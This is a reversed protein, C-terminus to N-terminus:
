YLDEPKFLVSQRAAPPTGLEIAGGGGTTTACYVQNSFRGDRTAIGVTANPPAYNAASGPIAPTQLFNMRVQSNRYLVIQFSVPGTPGTGVVPVNAYEIVFRDDAPQFTSIQSGPNPQLDAWWGYIAQPPHLLDTLCRNPLGPTVGASPFSVYGDTNIRADLYSRDKLSFAFPLTIAVSSSGSLPYSVRVAAGPTEWLFGDPDSAASVSMVPVYISAVPEWNQVTLKVQVPQIIQGGGLREGVVWFSTSYVGTILHTSSIEVTARGPEGYRVTGQLPPIYRLWQNSGQPSISWAMGTASLNEITMTYSFPEAGYPVQFSLATSPVSIQAPAARRLAAHADVRGSGVEDADEDLPAATARLLARVADGSLNPNAAWVEAAVGSAVGAAMSTGYIDCYAGGNPAQYYHNRCKLAATRPWTSRIAFSADGGPAALEIDSGKAGYAARDDYYTTAAIAMVVGYAAPYTVSQSNRNGAAAILLVGKDYAYNVASEMAFSFDTSELSLNIIKAGADAADRIAKGVDTTDGKGGADLVKLPLLRIDPAMGAIGPGNNRAAAILGAVHTGHGSDDQASASPALYNRGALLRGEFEPHTLDIGTDIVAVVLSSAASQVAENENVAWARAAHIRQLYWQSEQYLSDTVPFPTEVLNTALLSSNAVPEEQAAFVLWNPEAFLVGPEQMLRAATQQEEGVPAALVYGTVADTGAPLLLGRLDLPAIVELGLGALTQAASVEGGRMGVLVQGPAVPAETADAPLTWAAASEDVSLPPAEQAYATTATIMALLFVLLLAICRGGPTAVARVYV